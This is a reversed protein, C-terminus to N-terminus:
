MLDGPTLLFNSRSNEDDEEAVYPVLHKVNFVDVTHMQPPLRLRYANNNIKALVELPGIKRSKLKNYTGPKFRDKTLVDWVLDGVNFQVDRRHVDAATKYKETSVELNSHVQEHIVALEDVFDCARGHFRTRDPSIGLDASCRPLRGYIVQFPSFGTSRNLARNHAFEAQCLVSDWSKINDGVLCRLLDGLARNTVETQGDTQPHYASSMDLKTRLLRWLSRWFHSLFRSDRDSVISLPLGHLKYVERFFLVAVQVDDTTKKCPIFHVMKSFRDVVFFISDNGRQTRPLGLVFDMSIDAWPQTPIPLPLYLGANTAKGKAAQCIGCRVIFREVDRRLTPWFYSSSVLKITRDRGIHGEGHLEHILKLRLSCEPICLQVGRFLFGDYVLYKDDIGLSADNWIKGFFPDLPYLEPLVEFGTVSGHLTTLLSHRRSLADAVKNLMEAKHVAYLEVDYTSYRLHSGAIKESFFAVPRSAQSLVAGIGTKSADCHLEFAVSFNPLILVPATTLKTQITQFASEAGPTWCFSTSKMCDTVPAMISSFHHVFRRYFSALGHFSCVDTITRPTPWSQIASIKAPDVALGQTSVIYGLFLVQEVGFVCKKSTAFLKEMRLVLLVERLHNLQEALSSSFILIDDFYVVVFRGIFPRLAQNMVRMFTSPANSLGFPMVLWEFLRERTKFATKWEDGPRIQIQHYGSRLDLKTFISASGIQDLLDDLRPIPFRYRITIKNIARSDVCMRWSGDKNPILLAPVACPSLSERVYGKALLEEVQRRLKDNERPSMRYHPRNPLASNPVLDICHQIDRLPPLGNPLESPFVDQFETLLKLFATPATPVLSSTSSALLLFYVVDTSECEELIHSKTILLTTKSPDSPAPSPAIDTTTILSDTAAQSPLLTIRKGEYTFNHTNAFGDHMTRRDYQWPRGLLLHCADMPLVDCCILDKYNLGISFPVRCRKSIRIDTKSNLWAIKYPSPHPETFLALKTVADDEGYEDYIPEDNVLLGRRNTNPCAPQRHGQEGCKFCKFTTPKQQGFTKNGESRDALKLQEMSKTIGTEPVSTLRTRQSNWTSTQSRSQQEILLARQHAESVTSPNFQLLTHQIQKRLGGIFRSIRQEENELRIRSEKTQQWWASARGRFRTAVLPVRMADPVEKFELLEETTNIWDLFEEAQLGGSFEPLELKFGSKWRRNDVQPVVIIDRQHHDGRQNQERRPAFQNVFVNEAEDEEEGDDFIPDEQWQIVPVANRQAHALTRVASEMTTRMTNSLGQQFETMMARFADNHEELTEQLTKKPPM